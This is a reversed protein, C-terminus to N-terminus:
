YNMGINESLNDIDIGYEIFEKWLNYLDSLEEKSDLLNKFNDATFDNIIQEINEFNDTKIDTLKTLKSEIKDKLTLKKFNNDSPNVGKNISILSVKSTINDDPLITVNDLTNLQIQHPNDAITFNPPNIIDGSM